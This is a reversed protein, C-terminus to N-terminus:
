NKEFIFNLNLELKNVETKTITRKTMKFKSAKNKYSKFPSTKTDFRKEIIDDYVIYINDCLDGIFRV